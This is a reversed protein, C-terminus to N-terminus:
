SAGAKLKAIAAKHADMAANYNKINRKTITVVAWPEGFTAPKNKSMTIYGLAILRKVANQTPKGPSPLFDEIGFRQQSHLAGILVGYEIKSLGLPHNFPARPKKDKM